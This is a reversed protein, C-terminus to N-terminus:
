PHLLFVRQPGSVQGTEFDIGLADFPMICSAEAPGSSCETPKADDLEIAAFFSKLDVRVGDANPSFDEIEVATRNPFRCGSINGVTGECGASGVHIWYGDDATKVGARIFKYGSRWHWHMAPDDLPASAALPDSHNSDFPVGVTFRLGRYDGPPASGVVYAFLDNTGNVCAGKGSELDILALESQQWPLSAHLELRQPRGGSDVLEIDAVYFRLDSLAVPTDSCGIETGDWTAVFPIKVGLYPKSCSTALLWVMGAM